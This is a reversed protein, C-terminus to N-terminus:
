LPVFWDEVFATTPIAEALTNSLAKSQNPSWTDHMHLDFGGQNQQIQYDLANPMLTRNQAPSSNSGYGGMWRPTQYVQHNRQNQQSSTLDPNQISQSPPLQPKRRVAEGEPLIQDPQSVERIFQSLSGSDSTVPYLDVPKAQTSLSPNFPTDLTGQLGPRVSGTFITQSRELNPSSILPAAISRSNHLLEGSPTAIPNESPTRKLSKTPASENSVTCGIAMYDYQGDYADQREIQSAEQNNRKTRRMRRKDPIERPRKELGEDLISEFLIDVVKAIRWVRSIDKLANMCVRMRDPTEEPVSFANSRIQYVHMTMASFLSYVISAPCYQLENHASLCEIIPTIAAAAKFAINASPHPIELPGGKTVPQMHARHLLCLISYYSSHLLASWFDHRSLEWYLQRPCSQLWDALVMNSYTLNITNQRRARTAVSYQLSLVLGMIECLKVYQLFFQIHLPNQAFENEVHDDEIFDDICVMEVDCDDLNIHLPYGFAVAISRDRTFLTWWIRKWLRKDFISLQSEEVSRHMGSGQAVVIAARSWYFTNTALDERGEWYWGILVLAQVIAVRDDEYNADYLAKARRYFTLAASATSGKADMLQSNTCVTSGALLIAQLLLCSPPNTADRYQRMFQARSVVPIIPAVWKFYSDVLEDCLARPPLLFAGRQHLISIEVIDLTALRRDSSNASEPLPYHTADAMRDRDHFLIAMNWSEGLYAVQGAEKIPARTFKNNIFQASNTSRDSDERPQYYEETPPTSPTSNPGSNLNTNQNNPANSM